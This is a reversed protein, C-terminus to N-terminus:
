SRWFRYGAVFIIVAAATSIITCILSPLFIDAAASSGAGARLSIVTTPILQISTANIIFLLKQGFENKDKQMGRVAKVAYPTAAGGVGLLNCSLNLAINKSIEPDSTKFVRKSLPLLGRAAARALGCEEAIKSVGMWLAYVSFLTAAMYLASQGGSLLAPLLKEPSIILMVAASCVIIATFIANM